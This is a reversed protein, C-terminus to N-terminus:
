VKGKQNDWESLQINLLGWKVGGIADGVTGEREQVKTLLWEDSLPKRNHHQHFITDPAVVVQQTFGGLGLRAVSYSDMHGLVTTSEFLGRVSFFAERSALIFDGCGNTHLAEKPGHSKPLDHLNIPQTVPITLYDTSGTIHSEFTNNVAFQIYDEVPVQDIGDSIFDHRDTRYFYSRHLKRKSIGEILENTFLIDPNTTLVFEGRARRIGANKGYFELVPSPHNITAHVEPPVTIVRVFLNKTDILVDKLPARDALPNWEVVILEMLDPYNRIQYDLSRIFTNIRDLFNVGYDDNRGVIVVSLYPTTM